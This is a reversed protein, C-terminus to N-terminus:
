RIVNALKLQHKAADIRLTKIEDFTAAQMNLAFYFTGAKNEVFGVYWGLTTKENLYGGGTKAYLKYLDNEEVLMINKIQEITKKSVPLKQENLRQLFDVQEKATIALSGNLWFTDVGSSTDTNGFNFKRVYDEMTKEGIQSALQQYIPFASHLFAQKLTLPSQYWTKPWWQQIPYSSKDFTLKQAPNKILGLELAILSNPIKFTSFPSFRKESRSKNITQYTSEKGNKLVFTCNKDCDYKDDAALSTCFLM